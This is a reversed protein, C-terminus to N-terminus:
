RRDESGHVHSRLLPTHKNVAPQQEAQPTLLSLALRLEDNEAELQKIRARAITLQHETTQIIKQTM